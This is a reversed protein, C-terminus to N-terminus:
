VTVDNVQPKLRLTSSCSLPENILNYQLDELFTFNLNKCSQSRACFHEITKIQRASQLKPVDELKLLVSRLVSMAYYRYVGQVLVQCRYNCRRCHQVQPHQRISLYSFILLWRWRWLAGSRIIHYSLSHVPPLWKIREQFPM